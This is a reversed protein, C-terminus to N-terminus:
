SDAHPFRPERKELFATLGERAGATEFIRGLALAEDRLHADHEGQLARNCLEKASAIADSSKAAVLEAVERAKTLVPDHLGNVLGRDHAEQAGVLRGTLVLDKAFGLTTVRALRQTGGWGPMLGYNIEPQGFKATSSAYRLDCALALECGGGLALGNIAAITVKRMTELLRTVEHGLRGWATGEANDLTGMYRIDAGACFARSGSGTLIVARVGNANALAALRDRLSTMTTLDAVNLGNTSDITLTAISGDREESIGM